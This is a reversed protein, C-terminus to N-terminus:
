GRPRERTAGLLDLALAPAQNAQALVAAGAQQLITSRVLSASDEAVDADKIRSEAARYDGEKQHLSSVASQLRSMQAGIAGAQLNVRNLADRFLDLAALSDDRSLLSFHELLPSAPWDYGAAWAPGNVLTGVSGNSSSDATTAGSGEELHLLLLTSEDNAFPSTSPTFTGDYRVASSIRVEDIEGSFSNAADGIWGPGYPYVTGVALDEDTDGLVPYWDTINHTAAASVTGDVYVAVNREQDVTVAVHHWVDPTLPSSTTLLEFRPGSGDMAFYLDDAGTVALTYNYQGVSNWPKSVIFGSSEADTRVWAEITLEGGRYELAASTPVVVHDDLGDFDLANERNRSPEASLDVALPIASGSGGEGYMLVQGASGDLPRLGNFDTTQVIRNYESRLAQAERNLSSRQAGGLTGNSSQAALEGLRTLIDTLAGVAGEAINLYSIGDNLNRVAQALGRADVDLSSAIALGAADDSARAIRLGSSLRDYTRGLGTTSQALRRRAAASAVNSNITIPAM